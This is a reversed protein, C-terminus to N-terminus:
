MIDFFSKIFIFRILLVLLKYRRENMNRRLQHPAYIKLSVQDLVETLLLDIRSQSILFLDIKLFYHNTSSEFHWYFINSIM